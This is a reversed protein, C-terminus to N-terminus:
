VKSIKNELKVINKYKIFQTGLVLVSAKRDTGTRTKTGSVLEPEPKPEM